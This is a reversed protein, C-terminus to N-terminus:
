PSVVRYFRVRFNTVMRDTFTLSSIVPTFNTLDVWPVPNAGLNTTAQIRYSFNTQFSLSFAFSNTLWQFSGTFQASPTNTAIVDAGFESTDGGASTATASFSQGTYNATTNTLVFNANGSGDTTVSVTGFYSQGQGYGGPDMAPNRYIDIFFTQNAMSNLTGAIVTTIGSGYANTIVPYNQLDNPGALFGTHNVTVGVNGLDIGLNTNGYISNGRIADNTTDSGFLLVGKVSSFVIVNSAGPSIGGIFNGTAGSQLEVNAGYFSGTGNGLGNTGTVDTGISNGEVTNGSTGADSLSVGYQLNASVFNAAGPTTGGILNDTAGSSVVIGVYTNPVATRGNVGIGVLNGQVMNGSTGANGIAVGIYNGSIVNRAALVTGGITNFTAGNFITMGAFGNPVANSGSVDTGIFNGQVVNAMTGPDTLRLGEAINGSIVNRAGTVTGGFTNNTAGDSCVMGFYNPVATLGDSGPGIYNGEVVNGSTGPNAVIVGYDSNLNNGSIVNRAGAVIGGILNSSSGTDITVGAITNPLANMGTADTGIFNGQVTNNVVQSGRMLIGNGLNGSIVNGAGANTGGILNHSAGAALFVGGFVNSVMLSGGAGTGIYNGLVVNGTTNSTIIVGYQSNGSLVNRALTNTGGVINVSTGNGIFVGSLGNHVASSGSTDTGIYNNLVVNGTTNSDTIFIGYELNGSIVNRAAVNTGGVTNGSSGNGIFVGSLGNHVANLGSADTGIYNGLVVNGTTNSDTIFVGYQSNGSIVNRTSANTGGIINGSAGAAILIGQFANPAANTGTSDIGIWCGSITNNTADPYLLTIGNWNFGTFCINKVQNSASYILLGTDSTFTEPLIQSGDLVILPKNTFGPQTSGDIVMGNSVLLPLMGTLHINFVGNSYGPDSTPINFKVPSGPHDTAYYLAARLSNSGFDATTTVVNTLPVPQGYLFKLAARDGPSLCYNGMRFQYRPFFPPKPQQTAAIGPNTSGFDWGLHMVSEFDYPGNTVSGPDIQFFSLYGSAVNNSLVTLYNTQDPRINEHTFGFSHGMEHCVQARSLSSITVVQPNTSSSVNDIWNTNYTFLVWHAQNTHPVFQVNAALQWERLGNFYTNTQAPSLANTFEYPVIGGPWPVNAPSTNTYFNGGCAALPAFSIWTLAVFIATREATGALFHGRESKM